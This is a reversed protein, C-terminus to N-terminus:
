RGREMSIAAYGVVQRYDGSTAGSTRYDLLSWANADVAAAYGMVTAVASGGCMSLDRTGIGRVFGAADKALVADITRGDIEEAQEQTLYHSLDTSAVLLDAPDAMDAIIKGWAVHRSDAPTGLLVPVIPVLGVVEALFPLQVELTHEGLHPQVDQSKLSRGLERAFAEDIPFAGVPTEFAGSVYVSATQIPCRHSAGILIVRGPKKGRVRAYAFGATPGSYVYGAHPVVVAATTEPAAEVKSDTIFRHVM